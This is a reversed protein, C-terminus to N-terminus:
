ETLIRGNSDHYCSNGISITGAHHLNFVLQYFLLFTKTTTFTTWCVWRDEDFDDDEISLVSETVGPAMNLQQLVSNMYCTAGGNKLGVFGASSRSDVPPM